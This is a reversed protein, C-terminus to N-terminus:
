TQTTLPTLAESNNMPVNLQAATNLIRRWTPEPLDVGTASLEARAAREPDGPLCVPRGPIAPPVSKVRQGLTAMDARFRELPQFQNVALIWFFVGNATAFDADSLLPSGSGSLLGALAEVLLALAFGKHGAAPLLMGGDYYDQPRCSPRGDRDVIWGSPLLEGADRAVKIKGAAAAATSFDIVVPEGATPIAAALPNTGFIPERGGFPAVRPTSSGGNVFALAIYGDEAATQVFVGLRGVHGCRSIGAAAMGTSGARSILQDMTWAAVQSGFGRRGDVLLTTPTERTIEPQARPDIIGKQIAEVYEQVRIVGHSDHGALNAEVLSEAVGRADALSAGAAVFIATVQSKLEAIELIPM